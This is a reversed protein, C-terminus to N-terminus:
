RYRYRGVASALRPYALRSGPGRAGPLPPVPVLLSLAHSWGAPSFFTGGRERELPHIIIIGFSTALGRMAPLWGKRGDRRKREIVCVCRLYATVYICFINYTTITVFFVLLM